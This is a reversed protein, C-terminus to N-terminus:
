VLMTMVARANKNTTLSLVLVTLTTKKRFPEFPCISPLIKSSYKVIRYVSTCYDHRRDNVIRYIYKMCPYIYVFEDDSFSEGCKSKRLLVCLVMMM